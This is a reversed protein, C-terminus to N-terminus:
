DTLRYFAANNTIPLTIQYDGNSAVWAPTGLVNSWSMNPTPATQLVFGISTTPLSLVVNTDARAISLVPSAGPMANPGALFDATVQAVSIAGDYIRLEDLTATGNPDGAYSSKGLYFHVPRISTIPITIGTNQAMLVGNTYVTLSSSPPDYVLVLHLKGLNDLIPPTSVNQADNYGPDTDAVEFNIGSPSFGSHPTFDLCYEGNGTGSDTGGIDILRGWAVNPGFTVWCELTLATYGAILGGPLAGYNNNNPSSGGPLVLSNGNLSASGMVTGNAAGVSDTFTISGAPENFEYRHTLILPTPLVTVSQVACIGGYSATVTTTGPNLATLTLNSGAQLVNTNGSSLIPNAFAVNVNRGNQYHATITALLKQGVTTQGPLSLSIGTLLTFNTDLNDPGALYDAAVQAASMDGSYLRFEQITGSLYPDSNYGSRGLYDHDDQLSSFPINISAM